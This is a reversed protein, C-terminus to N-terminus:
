TGFGESPDVDILEQSRLGHAAGSAMQGAVGPRGRGRQRAVVLLESADDRAQDLEGAPKRVRTFLTQLVGPQHQLSVPEVSRDEPGAALLGPRALQRPLALRDALRNPGHHRPQFLGESRGKGDPVSPFMRETSCTQLISR